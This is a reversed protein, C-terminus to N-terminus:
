TSVDNPPIIIPGYNHYYYNKVSIYSILQVEMVNCRTEDQFILRRDQPM